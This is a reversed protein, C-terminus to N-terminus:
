LGSGSCSTFNRRWFLNLVLVRFTTYPSCHTPCSKAGHVHCPLTLVSAWVHLTAHVTYLLYECTPRHLTAVHQMFTGRYTPSYLSPCHRQSVSSNTDSRYEFYERCKSVNGTRPIRRPRCKPTYKSYMIHM